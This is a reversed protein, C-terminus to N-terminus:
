LYWDYERTLVDALFADLEAAKLEAYARVYDEGLYRPLIRGDRMRAIADLLKRPMEPDAREGANGTAAPGPDLANELGWHIGALVAAVVLYPNAEAGAVRHEVRRAAAPSSPVRFGVSRNNEGWARNVPLFNNAEFRRCANLNPAFIAMSEYMTAQLGGIAHGLTREGDNGREDFVNRGDADLLSVHVHLGSGAQDAFPNSLFPADLGRARAVGKVARRLLLAEDCARLADDVHGLNIEYQGRGYESSAAGVALGQARCAADIAALVDGFEDLKEMGFVRPAANARGTRPAPPVRVRGDADRAADLLYFELECALVPRLGREALRGVVRELIVRPDYWWGAADDPDDIRFLFQAGDGDGWPVPALTGPIARAPWDPDGDGFGLGAVDHTVGTVDLLMTAPCFQLGDALLKPLEDAAYRKGLANGALDFTIADVFRTRSHTALFAAAEDRAGDSTM